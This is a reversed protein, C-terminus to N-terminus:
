ILESKQGTEILYVVFASCTVLMYKAMAQSSESEEIAAHRIGDADSTWGYMKNWAQELAPHITVGKDTLEKLGAGLTKRGTVNVVVSEVASISEKISNLYDPNSRDSLLDAARKISQRAGGFATTQNLANAIADVEIATGIQVLQEDIFRCDVLCHEFEENFAAIVKPTWDQMGDPKFNDFYGVYAEIMDLVSYWPGRLMQAKVLRFVKDQTPQEDRPKNFEASWIFTAIQNVSKYGYNFNDMRSNVAVIVNWLAVRTEDDLDEHQIVSRTPTYGARQSFTPM